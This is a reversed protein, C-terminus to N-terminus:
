IYFIVIFNSVGVLGMGIGVGVGCGLGWKLFWFDRLVEDVM